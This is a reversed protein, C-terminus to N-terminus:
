CRYCPRASALLAPCHVSGFAPPKKSSSNATGPDPSAACVPDGILARRTCIDEAIDDVACDRVANGSLGFVFDVSNEDGM